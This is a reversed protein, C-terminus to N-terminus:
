RRRRCVLVIADIRGTQILGAHFHLPRQLRLALPMMVRNLWWIARERKHQLYWMGIEVLWIPQPQMGYAASREIYFGYQNLKEILRHPEYRRRHGVIYDVSTWRSPHLPASLLLVAGPRAVRALEAFVADDDDIHEVIDLASLL